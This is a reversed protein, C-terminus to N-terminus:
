KHYGTGAKIAYARYVQELLILRALEHTFTMKSLSVTMDAEHLVNASLGLPGGIVFSICRRGQEEWQTVLAAFNESSVQRGTQDLAVIFSPQQIGAMLLRGEEEKIKAESEKNSWKKEKIVKIDAQAYRSLRKYFDDIGAALYSEKTKGLFLFELQM